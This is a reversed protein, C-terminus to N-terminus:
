RSRTADTPALAQAAYQIVVVSGSLNATRRLERVTRTQTDLKALAKEFGEKREVAPRSIGGDRRRRKRHPPDTENSRSEEPGRQNPRAV